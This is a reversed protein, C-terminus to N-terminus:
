WDSMRQCGGSCRSCSNQTDSTSSHSSPLDMHLFCVMLHGVSARSRRDCGGYALALTPSFTTGSSHVKPGPKASEDEVKEPPQLRPCRM